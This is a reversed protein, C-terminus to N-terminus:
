ELDAIGSIDLGRFLANRTVVPHAPDDIIIGLTEAIKAKAYPLVSHEPRYHGSGNNIETLHWNGNTDKKFSLEGAGFINRGRALESHAARGSDTEGRM